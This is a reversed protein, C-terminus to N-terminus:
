IGEMVHMNRLEYDEIKNQVSIAHADIDDECVDTIAQARFENVILACIEEISESKAKAELDSNGLETLGVLSAELDSLRLERMGRYAWKYFPEYRNNLLYIISITHKVFEFIALQAAGREGRKVCRPYNYRGAQAMMSSHAAIKKLRVDEPYGLLLKERVRTFEGLGDFFVEGNSAAALSASPIYLWQRLSTVDPAGFFRSYFDSTKMVGHRAGGAPSLLQRRYGEFEKPLKAYIRELKFGYKEYDADHLWICFAPEFDHDSSYEDDFGFCESGEGVLGVAIRDFIESSKLASEGFEEYFKRALEIGKM